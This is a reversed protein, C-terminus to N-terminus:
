EQKLSRAPNARAARVSFVSVTALAITLAFVAAFLFTAPSLGVHYAFNRLWARMLFFGAPGAILNSLLIPAAFEGEIRRLIGATSAGLVKRIGIEKRRLETMYATLGVLGLCSILVGLLSFWRFQRGMRLEDRYIRSFGSDLFDFRFPVGPAFAEWADRIGALVQSTGGAQPFIRVLVRSYARPEIFLMLPGVAEHLSRFHFDKVVGIVTGNVGWLSFKTGVPNALAMERAASENVLFYPAKLASEPGPFDRGAALTLGLTKLYRDDTSVFAWSPKLGPAMGEWAFGDAVNQVETPLSSVFTAGLVGPRRGLEDLFSRGNKLVADKAPLCVINEKRFGPDFARCFAVQRGISVTVILLVISISFQVVVLTRRFGSGRPVAAAGPGGAKLLGAPRLSSLLLAPYAGSLLGVAVSAALLFPVMGPSFLDDPRFDKGSLARFAPLAAAAAALAVPLAALASLVSEGLFQRVLQSREAGAAKRVAIERARRGSRATTLNVFNCGAVILIFIAVASLVVVNRIAGDEYLHIRSLPTLTLPTPITPMHDIVARAIKPVVRGAEAGPALLAYTVYEHNGWHVPRGFFREVSRFDGLVEFRLDSNRPPNRIVGTVKVPSRGEVMLTRGLPDGDGFYKKAAAETLVVSDPDRFATERRGAVFPLTFVEFVSRDALVYGDEEFADTGSTVTPASFPFWFRVTEVIEPYNDKLFPGLPAPQATGDSRLRYVRSSHEHFRDWGAEDRVWTALLAFCAMGLALGAINLSSYARDRRFSRLATKFAIGFMVIRWRVSEVIFLPLSRLAERRYWSAAGAPGLREVKQRYIEEVDGLYGDDRRHALARLVASSLRPPHM